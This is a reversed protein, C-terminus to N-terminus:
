LTGPALKGILFEPSVSYPSHAASSMAAAPMSPRGSELGRSHMDTHDHREGGRPFHEILSQRLSSERCIEQMWLPM